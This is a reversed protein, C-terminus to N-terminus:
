HGGSAIKKEYDAVSLLNDLEKPNSMKVTILWGKGFPDAAISEPSKELPSNVEVVTGSVPANLPASAKVSEVEGFPEGAKVANGPKPLELYTLDTLQECAFGTIGIRAIDGEVKCWEDTKAYKCDPPNKISM